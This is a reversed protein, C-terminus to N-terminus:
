STKMPRADPGRLYNPVLDLPDAFLDKEAMQRGIIYVKEADPNWFEPGYFRIGPVDFKGKYYLLGEGLLWLPDSEDAFRDLFQSATTLCDPVIKKWIRGDADPVVPETTPHHDHDPATRQYVATYFQGRKADLVAAIKRIDARQPDTYDATNAAIVDLTSLAVIKAANTLHMMKALTVAIRLGTFSGPGASIYVQRIDTPTKGFESVLRQVAPFLEASHRMPGTFRTQGLLKPGVALAVSGHRGSTEVALICPGPDDAASRAGCAQRDTRDNDSISRNDM